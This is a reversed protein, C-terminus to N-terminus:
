WVNWLLKFAGVTVQLLVLSARTLESDNLIANVYVSNVTVTMVLNILHLGYIVAYKKIVFLIYGKRDQEQKIIRSPSHAEGMYFRFRGEIIATTSTSIVAIILILGGCFIVPALGHLFAVSVIYGYQYSVTSTIQNMGIYMPICLVTLILLIIMAWRQFVLLVLLFSKTEQLDNWCMQAIDLTSSSSLSMKRPNDPPMVSDREEVPKSLNSSKDSNYYHLINNVSRPGNVCMSDGYVDYTLGEDPKSEIVESEQKEPLSLQTNRYESEFKENMSNIYGQSDASSMIEDVAKEQNKTLPIDATLWWLKTVDFFNTARKTIYNRFKRLRDSPTSTRQMSITSQSIETALRHRQTTVDLIRRVDRQRFSFYLAIAMTSIISFFIIWIYSTINLTYSGCYYSAAYKDKMPIEEVSCEYINSALIDLETLNHDIASHIISSPLPGSLRNVSLTLLSQFPSVTFADVLTGDLANNTLDLEAFSHTQMSIPITGTLGNNSLSLDTLNSGLVVEPIPGFLGNGSLHLTNLNPMTLLCSSLTSYFRQIQYLGKITAPRHENFAKNRPCNKNSGIGDIALINLTYYAETDCIDPISGTFCNSVAAFATLKPFNYFDRSLTGSFLNDGINVAQLIVQSSSNLATFPSGTFANGDILLQTLTSIHMMFSPLTGSLHNNSMWIFAIHSLNGLSAPMSGSLHNSYFYIDYIYPIESIGSPISSTIYNDNLIISQATTLSSISSPIPGSFYNNSLDLSYLLTWSQFLADPISNTFYNYSMDVSFLLKYNKMSSPLIGTFSNGSINLYNLQYNIKFNSPLSGNFQNMSLDLNFLGNFQYISLPVSGTFFNNSVSLTSLRTLATVSSISNTMRNHSIDLSKLSKAKYFSSLNGHFRNYSVNLAYLSTMSSIDRPITGTLNNSSIDLIQLYKLITIASPVTGVLLNNSFDLIYASSLKAISSPLTGTFRNNGLSISFSNGWFEGISDPITGNLKNYRLDVSLISSLNYFGTPVPGTLSNSSIDVNILNTLQTFSEPISGYLSNYGVEFYYLDTLVGIEDPIFGNLCFNQLVISLISYYSGNGITNCDCSIGIWNETCPANFDNGVPSATFNWPNDNGLLCWFPGSTSNYLAELAFYQNSPLDGCTQFLRLSSLM